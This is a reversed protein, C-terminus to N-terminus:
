RISTKITETIKIGPINTTAKMAKVVASIKKEDLVWYEMPILSKDEIEWAWVKQVAAVGGGASRVRGM